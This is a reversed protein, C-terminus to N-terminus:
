PRIEEERWATTHETAVPDNKPYRVAAGRHDHKQMNSSTSTLKSEIPVPSIRPLFRVAKRESGPDDSRQSVNWEKLYKNIVAKSNGTTIVHTVPTLAPTSHLCPSTVITISHSLSPHFTPPFQFTFSHLLLPSFSNFLPIKYCSTM